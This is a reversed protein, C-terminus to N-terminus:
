EISTPLIKQMGASGRALYPVLLKLFINQNQSSKLFRVRSREFQSDHCLGGHMSLSLTRVMIMFHYSSQKEQHTDEEAEKIKVYHNALVSEVEQLTQDVIQNDRWMKTIRFVIESDPYPCLDHKGSSLM